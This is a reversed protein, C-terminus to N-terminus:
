RRGEQGRRHQRGARRQGPGLLALAGLSLLVITAPAAVPTALFGHVAGAPDLFDGVIRGREDIGVANTSVAGPVNLTAFRGGTLLFGQNPVTPDTPDAGFAGAVETFAGVIQGADDVGFAQTHVAGPAGITTFAGGPDRFWGHVRGMADLFGGALRGSSNVDNVLTVVAGPVDLTTFTTGTALFGHVAGGPDVFAGVIQGDANIGIPDTFTAGPVEIMSLSGGPDRLWGHPGGTVDFFAGVMQGGANIGHVNTAVAGPV